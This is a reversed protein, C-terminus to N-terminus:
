GGDQFEVPSPCTCMLNRDGMTNDIRCVTPWVKHERLYPLPYAAVTRSYPHTWVDAAVIHMPHPAHM